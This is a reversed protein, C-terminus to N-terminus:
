PRARGIRAAQFDMAAGDCHFIRSVLCGRRAAYKMTYAAHRVKGPAIVPAVDEQRNRQVPSGTLQPEDTVGSWGDRISTKGRFLVPSWPKGDV